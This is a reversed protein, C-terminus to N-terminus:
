FAPFSFDSLSRLKQGLWRLRPIQPRFGYSNRRFRLPLCTQHLGKEVCVCLDTWMTVMQIVIKKKQCLKQCLVVTQIMTMNTLYRRMDRDMFLERIVEKVTLRQHDMVCLFFGLVCVCNKVEAFRVSYMSITLTIERPLKWLPSDSEHAVAGLIFAGMFVPIGWEHPVYSCSIGKTTCFSYLFTPPTVTHTVRRGM